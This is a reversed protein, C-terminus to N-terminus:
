TRLWHAPRCTGFSSQRIMFKSALWRGSASFRATWVVDEHGVLTRLLRGDAVRWLRVTQDSSASVLLSGDPSFAM